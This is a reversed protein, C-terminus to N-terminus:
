EQVGLINRIFRIDPDSHGTIFRTKIASAIAISQSIGLMYHHNVDSFLSFRKKLERSSKRQLKTLADLMAPVDSGNCGQSCIYYCLKMSKIYAM